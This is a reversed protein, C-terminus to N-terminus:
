LSILDLLSSSNYTPGGECPISNPNYYFQDIGFVQAGEIDNTFDDGIMLASSKTGGIRELAIKFIPPSPKHFGVEESIVVAEFFNDIGSNKLKRYQVEKFGNTVIAMKAGRKKLSQLVDVAGPMLARQNPMTDLYEFGFKEAFIPDSIGFEKFTRFFREGRLQDKSIEGAEYQRWLEHNHRNYVNYFQNYDDISPVYRKLLSYINERSNTEFDWLTRDLDFLFYQYEKNAM